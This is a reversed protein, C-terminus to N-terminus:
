ICMEGAKRFAYIGQLLIIACKYERTNNRADCVRRGSLPTANDGGVIQLLNDPTTTGIGVGPATMRSGQHQYADEGVRGWSTGSYYYFGTQKDTQYIMLGQAPTILLTRGLSDM